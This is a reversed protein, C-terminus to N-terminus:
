FFESGYVSNRQRTAVVPWAEFSHMHVTNDLRNYQTNLNTSNTHLTHM